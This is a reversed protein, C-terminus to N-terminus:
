VSECRRVEEEAQMLEVVYPEYLILAQRKTLEYEPRTLQQRKLDMASYHFAVMPVGGFHKDETLTRAHIGWPGVCAGPHKTDVCDFRELYKQDGYKGGEPRDYCWEACLDAWREVDERHHWHVIGVNYRGFPKEHTVRRIGRPPNEPFGHRIFGNEDGWEAFLTEPNGWFKVDADVWTVPRGREGRLTAVFRAAETWMRESRTRDPWRSAWVDDPAEYIVVKVHPVQLVKAAFDACGYAQVHLESAPPLSRAMVLARALYGRDTATVFVRPRLFAMTHENHPSTTIDTVPIWGPLEAEIDERRFHWAPFTKGYGHTEWRGTNERLPVRALILMRRSADAMKRLDEEWDERHMLSCGDIVLEAPQWEGGDLLWESEPYYERAMAISAANVDYGTWTRYHYPISDWEERLYGPGCGIEVVRGRHVGYKYALWMVNHMWEPADQKAKLRDYGDRQSQAIAPDNWLTVNDDSM